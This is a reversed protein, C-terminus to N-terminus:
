NTVLFRDISAVPVPGTSCRLFFIMNIGAVTYAIVSYLHIEDICTEHKMWCITWTNWSRSPARLSCCVYTFVLNHYITLELKQRLDFNEAWSCLRHVTDTFSRDYISWLCLWAQTQSRPVHATFTDINWTWIDSSIKMQRGGTLRKGLM